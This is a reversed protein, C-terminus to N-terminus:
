GSYAGSKLIGSSWYYELYDPPDSSIAKCTALAFRNSYDETFTKFTFKTTSM